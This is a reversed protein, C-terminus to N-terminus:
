RANFDYLKDKLKQYGNEKIIAHEPICRLDKLKINELYETKLQNLSEINKGYVKYYDKQHANWFGDSDVISKKINFIEEAAAKKAGQSISTLLGKISLTRLGKFGGIVGGKIAAFAVKGRQRMKSRMYMGANESSDLFAQAKPFFSVGKEFLEKKLAIFDGKEQFSSSLFPKNLGELYATEGVPNYLKKYLDFGSLNKRDAENTKFIIYVREAETPPTSLSDNLVNKHKLVFSKIHRNAEDLETTTALVDIEYNDLDVLLNVYTEPTVTTELELVQNESSNKLAM